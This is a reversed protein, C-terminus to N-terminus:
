RPLQKRKKTFLFIGNKSELFTFGKKECGEVIGKRSSKISITGDFRLVRYLEDLINHFLSENRFLRPLGFLFAVDISQNPIGTNTADALITEVNTIQNTLIREQVRKIALPHIDLAIVNGTDTVIKAAPITFFGPGCGVELVEQGAKIGANELTQFPNSFKRRFPNDHILSMIKFSWDSGHKRSM